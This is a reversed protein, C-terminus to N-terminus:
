KKSKTKFSVEDQCKTYYNFMNEKAEQFERVHRLYTDRTNIVEPGSGYDIKAVEYKFAAQNLAVNTAHYRDILAELGKDM